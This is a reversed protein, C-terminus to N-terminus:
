YTGKNEDVLLVKRIEYKVGCMSYNVCFCEINNTLSVLYSTMLIIINRKVLQYDIRDVPMEELNLTAISQRLAKLIKKYKVAKM